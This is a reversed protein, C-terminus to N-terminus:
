QAPASSAVRVGTLREIEIVIRHADVSAELLENNAQLLEAQVVSWEFYSYRGLEYARQTGALAHEIRPIVDKSLREALQLNHLLEQYFVFLSVNVRVRAAATEAETRALNARAEAIRGENKNRVALPVTIGAVFAVDNAAEFRRLGAYVRWNPKGRAQALLLESENLRQQSMFRALEPNEGASALLTELPEAVPLTQLEGSVSGFDPRTEGWQAGLLHYASLLEHEYDEALLEARALEAEARALEADPTRSAAVRRRVAEVTEGALRVAEAANVIRGPYALCVLFRRATQAAVDLRMIETDVTSLSVGARAADVRRQRKGRELVWGLTVTTQALEVGNFNDTGFVDEVIVGLEPNPALGAQQLMGEAADVQYGLVALEPNRALTRALADSLDIAPLDEAPGTQACVLTSIISLFLYVGLTRVIPCCM